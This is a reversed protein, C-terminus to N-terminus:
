REFMSPNEPPTLPNFGGLNKKLGKLIHKIGSSHRKVGPVSRNAMEHEEQLMLSPMNCIVQVGGLIKGVGWPFFSFGGKSKFM